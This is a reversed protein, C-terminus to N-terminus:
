LNSTLMVRADKCLLLELDFEDNSYDELANGHGAKKVVSRAVLYKLSHLMKKNHSHVNENKSFLHVSNEFYLNTLLDINIPTRTMLLRWDDIQPNANRVNMLLQRFKQQNDNEGNQSLIKDLTVVIKFEKWLLKERRNSDYAVRGGVPPLLGM